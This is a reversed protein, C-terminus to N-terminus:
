EGLLIRFNSFLAPQIIFWSVKGGPAGKEDTSEAEKIAQFRDRIYFTYGTLQKKPANPDKKKRKKKGPLEAEQEVSKPQQGDIVDGNSLMAHITKMTEARAAYAESMTSAFLEESAALSAMAQQLQSIM